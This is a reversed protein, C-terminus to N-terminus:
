YHSVCSKNSSSFFICLAKYASLLSTELQDCVKDNQLSALFQGQRKKVNQGLFRPPQFFNIQDCQKPPKTSITKTAPPRAAEQGGPRAKPGPPKPACHFVNFLGVLGDLARFVNGIDRLQRPDFLFSEEVVHTKQTNRDAMLPGWHVRSSLPSLRDPHCLLWLWQWGDTHDFIYEEEVHYHVSSM